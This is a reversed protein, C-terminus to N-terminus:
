ALRESLDRWAPSSREILDFKWERRWRKIRKEHAICGVIDDGREAWVLRALQYRACFDSGEGSQHQRMRSALHSTVGIYMARRYRDAM